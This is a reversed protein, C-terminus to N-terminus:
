AGMLLFSTVYDVTAAGGASPTVWNTNYNTGDIKALVQGTTGGTPVGIGNAGTAGAPGAAGAPGTPGQTGVVGDYPLSNWVTVGDGIKVKHTDREWGWEGDLLVYSSGVSSWEAATGRKMQYRMKVADAM